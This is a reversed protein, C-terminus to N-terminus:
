LTTPPQPQQNRIQGIRNAKVPIWDSCDSNPDAIKAKLRNEINKDSGTQSRIWEDRKTNPKRRTQPPADADDVLRAPPTENRPALWEAWEKLATGMNDHEHRSAILVNDWLRRGKIPMLDYGGWMREFWALTVDYLPVGPRLFPLPEPTDPLATGTGRTLRNKDDLHRDLEETVDDFSPMTEVLLGDQPEWADGTRGALKRLTNKWEDAKRLREGVGRHLKKEEDDGTFSFPKAPPNTLAFAAIFEVAGEVMSVSEADDCGNQKCWAIAPDALARIADDPDEYSLWFRRTEALWADFAQQGQENTNACHCAWLLPSFRDIISILKHLPNGPM